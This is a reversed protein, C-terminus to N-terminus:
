GILVKLSILLVIYNIAAFSSSSTLARSSASAQAVFKKSPLLSADADGGVPEVDPVMASFGKPTSPSLTTPEPAATTTTPQPSTPKKTPHGHQRSIVSM